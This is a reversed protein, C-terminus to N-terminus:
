GVKVFAASGEIGGNPGGSCGSKDGKDDPEEDDGRFKTKPDVEKEPVVPKEKDKGKGKKSLSKTTRKMVMRQELNAIKENTKAIRRDLAKRELNFGHLYDHLNAMHYTDSDSDSEDPVDPFKQELTKQKKPSMAFSIGFVVLAVISLEKSGNRHIM